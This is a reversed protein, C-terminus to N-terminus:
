MSRATLARKVFDPLKVGETNAKDRLDDFIKVEKGQWLLDLRRADEMAVHEYDEPHGWYCVICNAPDKISLLNECRECSWSKARNCSGCLLQFDAISLTGEIEGHVGFPVRHDIQLYRSEFHGSCISCKSGFIAILESKFKKPLARRASSLGGSFEAFDGFRYAAISRGDKSKVAFREIPFGLERVDRVARPPHQYGYQLTLEESTIAGNKKIHELVIRARKNTVLKIANAINAPIKKKM